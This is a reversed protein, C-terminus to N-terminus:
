STATEDVPQIDLLHIGGKGEMGRVVVWEAWLPRVIDNMLGSPVLFTYVKGHEDELGITNRKGKERKKAEHLKGQVEITKSEVARTPSWIPGPPGTLAVRRVKQDQVSTFGVTRIREGDPSLRRAQHVFNTYYSHSGIHRSLEERCGEQFLRLCQLFDEVIRDTENAPDLLSLQKESRGIRLTVTFCAARAATTFFEFDETVTRSPPADERFQIGRHREATRLLLRGATQVRDFYLHAPIIGYGVANGSLSMQVEGKALKKGRLQLHRTFNVTEYLDRLEEAIEAPPEGSLAIAVLREAERVEGCDIALSAASRLLVSRTPEAALDSVFLLAAQRELQYAERSLAQGRSLDGTNSAVVAMSAREMAAKHLDSAQSM